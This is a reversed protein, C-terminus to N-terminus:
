RRPGGGFKPTSAAPQSSTALVASSPAVSTTSPVLSPVSQTASAATAASMKLSDDISTASGQQLPALRPAFTPDAQAIAGLLLNREEMLGMREATRAIELYLQVSGNGLNPLMKLVSRFGDKDNLAEYAMTLAMAERTDKLGYPAKASLAAAIEKAGEQINSFDFMESLGVYWHSEGVNPDFALAQKFYDLAEEKRNHALYFQALSYYLQQRKPSTRIAEKYQQEALTADEPVLSSFAHLFRAFIFHPHTNEPHNALHRQTIDVILDHWKRWDQYKGPIAGSDVLSILNRSQLFTQEDDYPTPIAAAKVAYDYAVPLVGGAFYNNSKISYYSARFPLVSYRWVIVLCGVMVVSFVGWPIAQPKSKEKEDAVEGKVGIFSGSTAAIILGYLLFSMTFGAPQDFVFLNQVFYASPLAVFISASPLDIWKKRFARYVSYFLTGFLGFYTIAGFLGTMALADVVTNHARDFWTEYYGYELSVPNYKANFLIHFNDYGWGTLPRELFGQWGIRWAIFRTETTVSFNTLRNLFSHSIADTNRFAFVLGYALACVLGISIVTMRTKRSNSFIAYVAVFVAVGVALGVLAGRSQAALFAGIDLLAVAALFIKFSTNGSKLWLLVIFFLNFIQYGAMYIPNDVLGGVRPGAPFMLLKPFPIQLLSVCAMIGSLVIEYILLSRWQKWTKVVSVTMTLWLLFHLVTFLGNMREQNGWWARQPDVAFIVSLLIAVFYAIIAGYLPTWKPRHQPEAWALAIYAPFTLGILIQFFILKSFVFPFIVVPIFMLPVLLGGYIGIYVIAKLWKIADNRHMNQHKGPYWPTTLLLWPAFEEGPVCGAYVTNRLSPDKYPNKVENLVVPIITM